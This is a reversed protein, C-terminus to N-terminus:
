RSLLQTGRPNFAGGRSLYSIMWIQCEIDGYRPILLVLHRWTDSRAGSNVSPTSVDHELDGGCAILNAEQRQSYRVQRILFRPVYM